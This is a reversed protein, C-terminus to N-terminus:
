DFKIGENKSQEINPLHRGNRKWNETSVKLLTSSNQNLDAM